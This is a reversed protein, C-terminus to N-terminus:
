HQGPFPTMPVPYENAPTEDQICIVVQKVPAPPQKQRELDGLIRQQQQQQQSFLRQQQQQALLRQQQQVLQQQAFMEAHLAWQQRLQARHKARGLLASFPGRTYIDSNGIPANDPFCARLALTRDVSSQLALKEYEAALFDGVRFTHPDRGLEDYVRGLLHHLSSEASSSLTLFSQRLLQNERRLTELENQTETM